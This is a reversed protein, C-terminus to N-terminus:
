AEAARRRAAPAAFEGARIRAIMERACRPCYVEVIRGELEGPWPLRFAGNVRIRQCQLCKVIM